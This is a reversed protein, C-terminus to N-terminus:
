IIHKLIHEIVAVTWGDGIVDMAQNKTLCKTYGIPLTQGQELERITLFRCFDEFEILGSNPTRDQKRTITNIKDDHTINKSGLFDGITNNGNNWARLRSKTKKAKYKKLININTEKYDQFSINRDQPISFKFNTWYLRKRNQYSVLASDIEVGTVGMIQNLITENEKSMRTNELLFFKPKVEDLIRKYEYFLSSKNGELGKGSGILSFDQCPSGGLLLDVKGINYKGTETTLIGDMYSVNRVDGIHITDPYNKRTCYIAHPKIESAYYTYDVGLNSLAVQGCSIGDFLSLVVM